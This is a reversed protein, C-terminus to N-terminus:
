SRSIFNFEMKSYLLLENIVSIIRGTSALENLIEVLRPINIIEEIAGMYKEVIANVPYLQEAQTQIAQNLETAPKQSKIVFTIPFHLVKDIDLFYKSIDTTETVQFFRGLPKMVFDIGGDNANTRGTKYLKLNENQLAELTWGWYITQEIFHSKLIAFSVIEFIRADVSPRLLDSIFSMAQGPENESIKQLNEVDAIFSNFEGQKSEIYADIIDIIVRSLNYVQGDHEITLLRENFWYRSTETDRIIPSFDQQPFFRSFEQNLRHNLAHNQLKAGFPLERQRRFLESFRAGEYDSYNSEVDFDHNLYDEVLVYIAYINGFSGRAKSGRSASKTKANLYKILDSKTFLDNAVLGFHAILLRKIIQTFQHEM